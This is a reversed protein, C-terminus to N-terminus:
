FSKVIQKVRTRSVGYRAALVAVPLGERRANRILLNREKNAFYRPVDVVEGALESEALTRAAARGVIWSLPHDALTSSRTPIYLRAGALTRALELTKPWGVVQALRKLSAPADSVDRLLERRDAKDM